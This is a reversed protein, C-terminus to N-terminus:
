LKKDRLYKYNKLVFKIAEEKTKIVGEKQKKYVSELITKFNPSSKFGLDILDKGQILKELHESFVDLKIAIKELEKVKGINIINQDNLQGRGSYDAEMVLVLDKITAPKINDSLKKVFKDSIQDVGILADHYKILQLIIPINKKPINLKEIFTIALPISEQAHGYSTVKEGEIKTTTVKGFDHCLVSLLIIIQRDKTVKERHCINKAQDLAQLTHEFVDGEPHYKKWQVLGILNYIEPHLKELIKLEKAIRLGRSPQDAQLLMKIWEEGLRSDSINSLDMNQCLKKTKDDIKFKLVAAFRMARLVRLPDDAFKKPDVCRLTKNLIDNVGGHADIIEGSFPDIAIANCTFDRRSSAEEISLNPFFSTIFDKHGVGKKSEKRPLAIDIGSDLKYVGFSKGVLSLSDDTNKNLVEEMKQPAINYIELDIDKFSIEKKFGFKHLILDRVFGGILVPKAKHKKLLLCIKLVKTIIRKEALNETSALIKSLSDVKKSTDPLNKSKQQNKIKLINAM